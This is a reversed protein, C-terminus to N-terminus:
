VEGTEIIDIGCIYSYDEGSIQLAIAGDVPVVDIYEVGDLYNIGSATTCAFYSDVVGGIDTLTERDDNTDRRGSLRITHNKSDSLGEIYLTISTAPAQSYSYLSQSNRLYCDGEEGVTLLGTLDNFPVSLRISAGNDVGNIDLISQATTVFPEVLSTIWYIGDQESPSTNMRVKYENMVTDSILIDATNTTAFGDTNTGTVSVNQTEGTTPTGSIIGTDPAISLGTPLTGNVSYTVVAGGTFLDATTYSYPTGTSGAPPAFTGSAIPPASPIPLVPNEQIVFPSALVYNADSMALSWDTTENGEYVDATGDGKYHIAVLDFTAGNVNTAYMFTIEETNSFSGRLNIVRDGTLDITGDQPYQEIDPVYALGSSEELYGNVSNGSSDVVTKFGSDDGLVETLNYIIGEVPPTLDDIIVSHILDYRGGLTNITISEAYDGTYLTEDFDIGIIESSAIAVDLPFVVSPNVALKSDVEFTIGVVRIPVESTVGNTLTLNTTIM